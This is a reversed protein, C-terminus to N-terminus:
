EALILWSLWENSLCQGWLWCLVSHAALGRAVFHLAPEFHKWRYLLPVEFLHGLLLDLTRRMRSNCEETNRCCEPHCYHSIRGTPPLETLWSENLMSVIFGQDDETLGHSCAQLMSMNQKMSLRVREPLVGVCIRDVNSALLDLATDYRQRFNSSQMAHAMRVLGSWSQFGPRGPVGCFFFFIPVPIFPRRIFSCSTPVGLFNAVRFM